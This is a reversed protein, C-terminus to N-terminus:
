SSPKLRALASEVASVSTLQAVDADDFRVGFADEIAFILNMHRLSDWGDETQASTESNVREEPIMLIEALIKKLEPNM